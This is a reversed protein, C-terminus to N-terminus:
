IRGEGFPYLSNPDNMGYTLLSVKRHTEKLGYSTVTAKGDETIVYEWWDGKGNIADGKEMVKGQEDLIMVQV